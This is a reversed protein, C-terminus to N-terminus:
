STAGYTLTGTGGITTQTQGEACAIPLPTIINGTAAATLNATHMEIVYEGGVNVLTAFVIEPVRLGLARGIEGSLFEAILARPGQGAGRFKLVYLGEDDAEVIAPLSGGERLPTVYRTVRVTRVQPVAAITM